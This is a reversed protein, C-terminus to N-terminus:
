LVRSRLRIWGSISFIRLLFLFSMCLFREVIDSIRVIQRIMSPTRAFFRRNTSKGLTNSEIRMSRVTNVIFPVGYEGSGRM